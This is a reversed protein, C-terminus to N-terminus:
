LLKSGNLIYDSTLGDFGDSKGIRLKKVSSIITDVNFYHLHGNNINVGHCKNAIDDSTEHLLETIDHEKYSVSNYMCNYTNTFVFLIDLDRTFGYTQSVISKMNSRIKSVSRWFDDMKTQTFSQAIRNM